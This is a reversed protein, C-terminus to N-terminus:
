FNLTIVNQEALFNLNVYKNNIEFKEQGLKFFIFDM